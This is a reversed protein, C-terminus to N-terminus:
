RRWVRDVNIEVEVPVLKLFDKGAQIMDKKVIEKVAEVQDDRVEIVLEDHVLNIIRAEYGKLNDMLYQIAKKIIDGCTGQIPTNRGKREISNKSDISYVPSFYRKRGSLTEAYLKSIAELSLDDLCQKVKPYEGFYREIFLQAEREPINLRNALGAPGMGYCLGFNITKAIERQEKTVQSTSIGFLKAATTTHLDQRTQYAELFAPDQSYEALIRLEIQSYDATLIQYGEEAVFLDRWEQEKPIQQLNPNRCSFRGSDTGVQFFEAHIRGTKPHIYKPLTEVFSSLLKSKKRHEALRRAFPHNIRGLTDTNANKVEYGLKSLVQKVQSSSRFNIRPGFLCMQGPLPVESILSTLHGELEKLENRYKMSLTELKGLDVKVGTLESEAIAPIIAFELMAVKILGAKRLADTQKRFIHELVKVDSAAYEMQEQTLNGDRFSIQASKDITTNLYKQVLAELSLTVESTRGANLIAEALYTDFFRRASLKRNFFQSLFKLDFKLNHGVKLVNKDELIRQIGEYYPDEGFERGIKPVNLLFITTGAMIQILIIKAILPDLGTSEIDIFVVKAAWHYISKEVRGLEKDNCIEVVEYPRDIMTELPQLIGRV